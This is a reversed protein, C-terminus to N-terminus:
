GSSGATETIGASGGVGSSDGGAGAGGGDGGAGAAGVGGCSQPTGGELFPTADVCGLGVQIVGAIKDLKYGCTHDPRCCGPFQVEVGGFEIPVKPSLPCSTDATGPQALPQCVESFTPGSTPLASSDLGCRSTAPDACCGPVTVDVIPIVVSDCTATGCSVTTPAAGSGATGPKGAASSGSGGRAITMSGGTGTGTRAGSGGSAQSGASAQTESSNGGCAPAGIVLLAGCAGLIRFIRWTM